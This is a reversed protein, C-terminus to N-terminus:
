EVEHPDAREAQVVDAKADTWLFGLQPVLFLLGFIIAKISPM